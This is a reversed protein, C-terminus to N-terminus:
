DQRGLMKRWGERGKGLQSGETPGDGADWGPEGGRHRSTLECIKIFEEVEQFCPNSLFSGDLYFQPVIAFKGEGFFRLLSLDKRENVPSPEKGDISVRETCVPGVPRSVEHGVEVDYGCAVSFVRYCYAHSIINGEMPLSSCEQEGRPALNVGLEVGFGECARALGAGLSPTVVAKGGGLDERVAGKKEEPTGAFFALTAIAQRM